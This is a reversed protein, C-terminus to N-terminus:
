TRRTAKISSSPIPINSTPPPPPRLAGNVVAGRETLLKSWDALFQPYDHLGVAHSKLGAWIFIHMGNPNQGPTRPPGQQGLASPGAAELFLLFVAGATFAMTNNRKITVIGDENGSVRTM